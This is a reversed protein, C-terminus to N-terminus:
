LNGQAQVEQQGKVWPPDPAALHHISPACSQCSYADGPVLLVDLPPHTDWSHDPVVKVGAASTVPQGDRSIFVLKFKDQLIPVAFLEVPGMVDLTDFDPYLIVGVTLSSGPM